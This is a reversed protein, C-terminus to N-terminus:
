YNIFQNLSSCSDNRVTPFAVIIYLFAIEVFGNGMMKLLIYIFSTEVGIGYLSKPAYEFSSYYAYIMKNCGFM